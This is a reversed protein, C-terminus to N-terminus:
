KKRKNSKNIQTLAGFIVIIVVYYWNELIGKMMANFVEQGIGQEM